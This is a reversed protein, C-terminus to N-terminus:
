LKQRITQALVSRDQPVKGDFYTKLELQAIRDQHTAIASAMDHPLGMEKLTKAVERMEAARRKGHVAVREMVYDALGPMDSIGLTKGASLLIDTDLGQSEAATVCESLLSEVGKIIISRMMKVICAQGVLPGQWSFDFGFEKLIPSLEVERVGALLMPTAHGRPHIPAMIALDIYSVNQTKFKEETHKKTGPSVSNGDIFIHNEGLYPLLGLGADVSQDATVVSIIIDAKQALEAPNSVLHTHTDNGRESHIDYATDFAFKALKDTQGLSAAMALGAEGFGLFGLKINQMM